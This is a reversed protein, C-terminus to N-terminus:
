YLSINKWETRGTNIFCFYILFCFLFRFLIVFNFLFFAFNFTFSITHKLSLCSVSCIGITSCSSLHSPASPALTSRNRRTRGCGWRFRSRGLPSRSSFAFSCASPDLGIWCLSLRWSDKPLKMLSCLMWRASRAVKRAAVEAAATVYKHRLRSKGLVRPSWHTKEGCGRSIVWKGRM